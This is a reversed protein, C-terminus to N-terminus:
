CGARHSLRAGGELGWAGVPVGPAKLPERSVADPCEEVSKELLSRTEATQLTLPGM